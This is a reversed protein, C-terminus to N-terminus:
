SPSRSEISPVAQRPRDIAEVLWALNADTIGIEQLHLHTNRVYDINPGAVGSCHRVREVMTDRQLKGAYQAHARDAVYTLARRKTGNPLLV